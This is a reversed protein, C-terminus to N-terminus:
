NRRLMQAVSTATGLGRLPCEVKVTPYDSSRHVMVVMLRAIRTVLSSMVTDRCIASHTATQRLVMWGSVARVEVLSGGAM